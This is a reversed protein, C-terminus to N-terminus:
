SDNLHTITAQMRDWQDVIFTKHDGPIDAFAIRWFHVRVPQGRFSGDLLDRLRASSEFGTHAMFVIDKAPNVQLMATPGGFRPLLLDPWRRLQDRLDPRTQTLQAQKRQTKRTGEPYILVSEQASATRTLERVADVERETNEGSRDIFANPLRSGAIDLCPLNQLEKAMVYRLGEVRPKAFLVLPLITDTLSTHRVLLLASPGPITDGGTVEVRLSCLYRGMRFLQNAWWSQIARTEDILKPGKYFLWTVTLLLLGTWELALYGVAFM